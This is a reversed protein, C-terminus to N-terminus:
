MHDPETEDAEAVTNAHENMEAIDPTVMDAYVETLPDRSTDEHIFEADERDSHKGMVEGYVLPYL